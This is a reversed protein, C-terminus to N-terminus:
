GWISFAVAIVVMLVAPPLMLKYLEIFRPKFYDYSVVVCLHLPSILYGMFSSVYLLSILHVDNGMIPSLMPYALAIAAMNHATLVGIVFSLLPIIVLAPMSTHQLYKAVIEAVGSANAINKYLMISFVALGISPSFGKRLMKSRGGGRYILLSLVIGSTLAILFSINLSIFISLILTLAITVFLPMFNEMTEAFVGEKKGVDASEVKRSLKIVYLLGLILSVIFIPTQIVILRNINVESIQSMVILATALPFVLFGIHRFWLNLFTKGENSVGLRRGEADVMPASLLAGGPVPLLGFIFPIIALMGREPIIRKLNEVVLPIQGTEELVTALIKILMVIVILTDVEWDAITEYFTQALRDPNSLIGLILAGLIMAVGFNKKNAVLFIILSFSIILGSLSVLENM